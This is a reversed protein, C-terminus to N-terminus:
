LSNEYFTALLANAAVPVALLLPLFAEALVAHVLVENAVFADLSMTAQLVLKNKLM